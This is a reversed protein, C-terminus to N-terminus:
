EAEIRRKKIKFVYFGSDIVDVESPIVGLSPSNNDSFILVL